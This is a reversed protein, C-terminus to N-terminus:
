FCNEDSCAVLSQNKSTESFTFLDSNLLVLLRTVFEGCKMFVVSCAVLNQNESKESFTFLDSNLLVLLRTVFEPVIENLIMV